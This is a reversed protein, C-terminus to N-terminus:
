EVVARIRRVGASSAEEKVIKFKGIESTNNVHPGSCIESSFKGITYVSIKDGYKHEFVGQAGKKKAESVSMEERVVKIKSHIATNVVREIEGIEEPTLKRNFNFDFRLREPTINSGRQVIDQKLVQRLAALLLHSATHLKVTKESHDALGSAFKGKAATRSLEQHKELEQEFGKVDVKIKKEKALEVTMEIPFGYSQFLLFADKGNIDKKSIREFLGLGSLLTKGFKEEEFDLNDIIDQKNDVLHGYEKGYDNIIIRAIVSTFSDKIGILKGYRIARRILRRLVYGRELNSPKVNEALIFVAARLHDAIIRASREDYSSSLSKIKSMVNRFLSSDYVSEVNELIACVREYGFGTDVNRQKLGTYSGDKEKNFEMFVDNWVEVWRSDKPDFRRPAKEPSNWYFMETDPGCPGTQGAPGWWNNHKDLYAIREKPIGLKLWIAASEEDKGSNEDGGFVSVALKDIPFKLKETLFEFSWTIAEEKWYDGLSWNGLMQFLTLHVNDGVEDIDGTRVCKQCNVLRKGLPHKLGLLYPVLPHMGATTFLVTPDNQPVLPANIIEKHKKTKFFEIYEKKLDSSKM